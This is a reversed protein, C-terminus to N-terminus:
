FPFLFHVSWRWDETHSQFGHGIADKGEQRAPMGSTKPRSCCLVSPSPFHHTSQPAASEYWFWFNLQVCRWLTGDSETVGQLTNYADVDGVFSFIFFVWNIM